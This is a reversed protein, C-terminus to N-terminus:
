AAGETQEQDINEEAEEHMASHIDHASLWPERALLERLSGLDPLKLAKCIAADIDKRVPDVNLQAIPALKKKVLSDYTKVLAALKAQSLARVDLVPMSSWAPKKM